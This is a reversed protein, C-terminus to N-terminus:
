SRIEDGNLRQAPVAFDLPLPNFRSEAIPPRRVMTPGAELRDLQASLWATPKKRRAFRLHGALLRDWEAIPPRRVMTLGAELRDLQASLWATPKKRRAFRM